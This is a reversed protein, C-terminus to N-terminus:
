GVALAGETASSGWRHRGEVWTPVRALFVNSPKVDEVDGSATGIRQGAPKGRVGEALLVSGLASALACCTISATVSAKRTRERCCSM